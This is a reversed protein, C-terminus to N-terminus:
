NGAPEQDNLTDAAVVKGVVFKVTLNFTVPKDPIWQFNMEYVSGYKSFIEESGDMIRFQYDTKVGLPLFNITGLIRNHLGWATNISNPGSREYIYSKPQDNIVSGVEIFLTNGEIKVLQAANFGTQTEPIPLPSVPLQPSVNYMTHNRLILTESENLVVPAVPNNDRDFGAPTTYPFREIEVRWTM